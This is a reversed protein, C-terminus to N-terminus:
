GSVKCSAKSVKGKYFAKVENLGSVQANTFNLSESGHKELGITKNVDNVSVVVDGSYGISTVKINLPKCSATTLLGPEPTVEQKEATESFNKAKLTYLNKIKKGMSKIPNSLNLSMYAVYGKERDVCMKINAGSNLKESGVFEKPPIGMGFMSCPRGAYSEKGLYALTINEAKEAYRSVDTYRATTSNSIRCNKETKNAVKQTTRCTISQDERYEYIEVLTKGGIFGATAKFKTQGKYSYLQFNQMGGGILSTGPREFSYNVKYTSSQGKDSLQKLREEPTPGTSCGSAALIVLIATLIKLNM